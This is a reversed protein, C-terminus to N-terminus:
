QKGPIPAVAKPQGPGPTPSQPLDAQQVKWDAPPKVGQFHEAEIGKPNVKPDPFDWEELKQGGPKFVKVRRPLYARDGVSPPILILQMSEFESKDEKWRPKLELYIYPDKPDLPKLAQIDFRAAANKATMGGMLDLLLNNGAGNPGIKAVTVTKAAGDYHYVVKGNCIFAMFEEGTAKVNPPLQKVLNLRTLNPAMCWIDGTFKESRDTAKDKVTMEAKVAFTKMGSM